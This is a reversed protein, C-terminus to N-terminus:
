RSAPQAGTRRSLAIPEVFMRLGPLAAIKNAVAFGVQTAPGLLLALVVTGIGLPGGLLWGVLAATGEIAVRIAGVPWGLRRTLGVMLGDRPGTGLGASVYLGTGLGNLVVGVALLLWPAVPGSVNPLLPTFWDVLIGVCLMNLITGLAPKVGLGWGILIVLLGVAIMAQGVTLPLHLSVAVHFVDWPGAGVDAYITAAIGLSMVALGLYFWCLRLLLRPLSSM